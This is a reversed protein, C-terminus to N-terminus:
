SYYGMVVQAEPWRASSGALVRAFTIVALDGIIRVRAGFQELQVYPKQHVDMNVMFRDAAQQDQFYVDRIESPM